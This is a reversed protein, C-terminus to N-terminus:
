RRPEAAAAAGRLQTAATLEGIKRGMDEGVKTSFRYHFGAVIRALSVEATYDRIRTWKRTVGPATASTMSVEAIDDGFLRTLVAGAASSSICHACPYEPHMPTDGLPSWSADRPTAKNGTRDANRVATVPRWFNYHYKADFVAIFSDSTAMSVLAFLRASDVLDLKKAAALQRVIPNWAQPGTVFWFRGIDTQEASRKSSARGGMERIENLDDTWVQSDLAPPPAPRFQSGKELAWPTAAGVTSGLPVVTPVYVGPQTHPRYSEPATMGDKARLALIEAGAQKGLEVGNTKADGEAIAALSAKLAVDLSAQQDPHVVTLVTHAAAAAAADRSVSKDASLALRYPAYRKDIANVAEFMAVHLIAMIRANPPPMTRKEIAIAEAKANWHTIMDARASGPVMTALIAAPVAFRFAPM